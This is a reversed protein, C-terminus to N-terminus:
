VGGFGIKESLEPTMGGMAEFRQVIRDITGQQAPTGGSPLFRYWYALQRKSAAEVQELTPIDPRDLKIAPM